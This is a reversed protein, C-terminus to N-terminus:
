ISDITDNAKDRFKQAKKKKLHFKIVQIDSYKLKFNYESTSGHPFRQM